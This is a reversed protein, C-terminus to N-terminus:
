RRRARSRAEHAARLMAAEARAADREGRLGDREVVLDSAGDRAEKQAERLAARLRKGDAMARDRDKKAITAEARAEALQQALTAEKAGREAAAAEAQRLRSIELEAREKMAVAARKEDRARKLAGEVEERMEASRAAKGEAHAVTAQHRAVERRWVDARRALEDIAAQGHLVQAHLTACFARAAKLEDVAARLQRLLPAAVAPAGFGDAGVARRAAADAAEAAAGACVWAILTGDRGGGLM